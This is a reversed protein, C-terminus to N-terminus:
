GRGNTAARRAVEELLADLARVVAAGNTYLVQHGAAPVTFLLSGPVQGHIRFSHFEPGTIRDGLATVVALPPRLGPYSKSQLRLAPKLLRMDQANALLAAPRLALAIPSRAYRPDVPAPAFANEIARDTTAVALPTAVTWAGLAGLVPMEFLTDTISTIDDWDYLAGNVTMVGATADPYLLGHAVVVAAGYSFGVLVAREVGIRGLFAHVLRAQEAVTCVGSRPRTSYGHGPRDLAVARGRRAVDDFITLTWDELGGYAGHVLVIPTGRGREVYRLRVDEVEVFDGTPPLERETRSALLRTWVHMAAALAVAIALGWWSRRRSGARATAREHASPTDM